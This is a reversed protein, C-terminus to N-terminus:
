FDWIVDIGIRLPSEITNDFDVDYYITNVRLNIADSIDATLGIGVMYGSDDEDITALVTGSGFVGCCLWM